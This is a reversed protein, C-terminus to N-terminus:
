APTLEFITGAQAGAGGTGAAVTISGAGSKSAYLLLIVGGGGGGGTGNGNGGKAEISGNVVLRPTAILVGGGGGGGGGTGGGGGAGGGIQSNYGGGADGNSLLYAFIGPVYTRPTGFSASPRNAVGGASSGAGGNGGFADYSDNGAFGFSGDGGAGFVFSPAGAGGAGAAGNQGNNTVRVGAGITVSESAYIRLGATQLEADVTLNRYFKDNTLTTLSSITVDGDSGDGYPRLLTRALNLEAELASFNGNIAAGWGTVGASPKILTITM